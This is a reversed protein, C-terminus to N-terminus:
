MMETMADSVQMFIEASFPASMALLRELFEHAIRSNRRVQDGTPKDAQTFSWM